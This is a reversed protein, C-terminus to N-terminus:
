QDEQAITLRNCFITLFASASSATDCLSVLSQCFYAMEVPTFHIAIDRCIESCRGPYETAADYYVSALNSIFCGRNYDV